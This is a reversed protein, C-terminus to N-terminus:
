DIGRCTGAEATPWRWPFRLNRTTLVTASFIQLMLINLTMTQWSICESGKTVMQHFIRNGQINLWVFSRLNIHWRAASSFRNTKPFTIVQSPSSLDQGVGWHYSQTAVMVRCPFFDSLKAIGFCLFTALSGIFHFSVGCPVERFGEQRKTKKDVNTETVSNREQAKEEV